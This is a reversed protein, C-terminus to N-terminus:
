LRLVKVKRVNHSGFLNLAKQAKIKIMKRVTARKNKVNREGYVCKVKESYIDLKRLIETETKLKLM